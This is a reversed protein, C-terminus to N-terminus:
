ELDLTNEDAFLEVHQISTKGVPISNNSSAKRRQSCANVKWLLCASSSSFQPTRSAPLQLHWQLLFCPPIVRWGSYNETPIM